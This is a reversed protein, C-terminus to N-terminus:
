LCEKILASTCKLDQAIIKFCLNDSQGVVRGMFFVEKSTKKYIQECFIM